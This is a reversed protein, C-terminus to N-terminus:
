KLTISPLLEFKGSENVLLFPFSWIMLISVGRVIACTTFIYLIFSGRFYVHLNAFAVKGDLKADTM